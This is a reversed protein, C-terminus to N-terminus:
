RSSKLVKKSFGAGEHLFQRLSAPVEFGADRLANRGAQIILKMLFYHSSSRATNIPATPDARRSARAPADCVLSLSFEDVLCPSWEQSGSGAEGDDAGPAFNPARVVPGEQSNQIITCVHWNEPDSIPQWPEFLFMLAIPSLHRRQKRSRHSALPLHQTQRSSPVRNNEPRGTAPFSREGNMSRRIERVRLRIMM